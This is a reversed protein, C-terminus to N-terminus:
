RWTRRPLPSPPLLPPPPLTRAHTRSHSPPPPPLCCAAPLCAQWTRVTASLSNKLRLGAMQRTQADLTDNQLAQALALFFM